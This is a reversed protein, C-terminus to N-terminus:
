IYIDKRERIIFKISTGRFGFAERFKNCLALEKQSGELSSSVGVITLSNIEKGKKIGFTDKTEQEAPPKGANTATKISHRRCAAIKQM